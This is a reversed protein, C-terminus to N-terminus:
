GLRQGEQSLKMEFVKENCTAKSLKCMAHWGFTLQHLLHLCGWCTEMSIAGPNDGFLGALTAMTFLWALNSYETRQLLRWPSQLPHSRLLVECPRTEMTVRDQFNRLLKGEMTRHGIMDPENQTYGLFTERFSVMMLCLSKSLLDTFLYVAQFHLHYWECIM